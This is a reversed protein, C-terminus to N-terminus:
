VIIGKEIYVSLKSEKMGLLETFVYHNDEGLSPASKWGFTESDKFKLPGRDTVIAGLVPHKLTVFFDRAALHQDEALREADQVVGAPIRLKQLFSVIEEPMYRVTWKGILHDLEDENKKRKQLNLFRDDRILDEQGMAKCLAAWETDNFIAIVCWNDTGACKYCGHPAAPIYDAKNGQPLIYRSNVGADLLAPGLMTCMAEYESIDFYQGHGTRDRYELAALVALVAYLGVIHDAYSYGLGVPSEKSYSTLFTIGSLSQITPGFAVFDSWPGTQGMGSMSVMILDPRVAKLRRYDLKWNTMVRSSFNEIVVDSVKALKLIIGKAESYNMNLTISRKNRNWTNYYGSTDSEAGVATERTQVKIVEAGFDALLRTAYPGALVRTFDLIRLGNLIGKGIM